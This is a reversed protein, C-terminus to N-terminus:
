QKKFSSYEPGVKELFYAARNGGTSKLNLLTDYINLLEIFGIGTLSDNSKLVKVPVATNTNFSNQLDDLGMEIAITTDQNSIDEYYKITKNMNYGIFEKYTYDALFKNNPLAKKYFPIIYMEMIFKFKAIGYDDSFDVKFYDNDKVKEKTFTLFKEKTKDNDIIKFNNQSFEDSSLFLGFDLSFDLKGFTDKLIVEIMSNEVKPLLAKDVVTQRSINGSPKILKLNNYATIEKNLIVPELIRPLTKNLFYSPLTSQLVMGGRNFAKFMGSFHPLSEFADVINFTFKFLNYFSKVKDRYEKQNVYRTTNFGYIFMEFVDSDGLISNIYEEKYYAHEQKIIKGLRAKLVTEINVVNEFNNARKEADSADPNALIVKDIGLFRLAENTYGIQKDVSIDSNRV